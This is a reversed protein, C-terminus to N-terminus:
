LVDHAALLLGTIRLKHAGHQHFARLADVPHVLLGPGFPHRHVRARGTRAHQFPLPHGRGGVADVHVQDGQLQQGLLRLFVPGLHAGVAVHVREDEVTPGDHAHLDGVLLALLEDVSGVADDQAGTTHLHVAGHHGLVGGRSKLTDRIDGRRGVASALADAHALTYPGIQGSVIGGAGEVAAHPPAVIVLEIGLHVAVDVLVAVLYHALGPQADVAVAVANGIDARAGANIGIHVIRRGGRLPKALSGGDLHALGAALGVADEIRLVLLEHQVVVKALHNAALALDESVVVGEVIAHRLIQAVPM